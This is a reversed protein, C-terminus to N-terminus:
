QVTISGFLAPNTCCNLHDHYRWTGAIDFVMSYSEGQELGKMSDFVNCGKYECHTPHAASAPWHKAADTNVFTVKDGAKITLSNPSFGESTIEVVHETGTPTPQETVPSATCGAFFVIAILLPAYLMTNM